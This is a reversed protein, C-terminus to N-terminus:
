KTDFEFVMDTPPHEPDAAMKELFIQIPADDPREAGLRVLEERAAAAAGDRLLNLADGFRRYFAPDVHDNERGVVEVIPVYLEKGKVKVQGLERGIFGGGAEVYTPLSVLLHVKFQRTLGELRSALNVTDGIVSYDFRHEGGFNGVIADGTAIGVGIDIAAFRPDRERMAHLETLMKLGCDIAARAHMPLDLPAGWFAMIGDGRIKDVVGGSEMIDDTMKTMYDNLLAVLAAPDTREALGTYNVIDAFLISLHRREGGLKVGGPHDIISAIVHPHLYHEFALRLHRKELGETVYRYGALMMYVLIATVLPFVISIVIGDSVMRDQAYVYYGVALIVVVAASSMGSLGAVALAIALGMAFAFYFAIAEAELPRQIFDGTLINDIAHAHIFVKPIDAGIPTVARDGLGHGTAGVLVIKGSLNERPIAHAIIDSISYRVFPDKGRRFNILMRGYLDVPVPLGKISVGAVGDPNMKLALTADGAFVSAVALSLPVCYRDHFRITSLVSRIEGDADAEVDVYALAHAADNLEKVPPLYADAELLGLEEPTNPAEQVIGYAMPPPPRLKSLYGATNTIKLASRLNHSEFAYSLITSGQSKLATAFAQDNGSGLIEGIKERKWGLGSLRKAIESREVDNQDAESFITDYGVVAVNYYKFADELRALVSRPWPWQGLQAISRDDIQAVVVMGSAPRPSIQNIRLDYAFLDAREFASHFRYHLAFMAALVVGGLLFTRWSFRVFTASRVPPM